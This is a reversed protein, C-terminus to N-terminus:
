KVEELAEALRERYYTEAALKAADLTVFHQGDDRNDVSWRWCDKTLYDVEILGIISNVRFFYENITQWVLPKVRYVPDTIPRRYHTAGPPLSVAYPAPVDSWQRLHNLVQDGPTRIDEPIITM